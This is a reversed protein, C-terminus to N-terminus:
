TGIKDNEAPKRALIDGHVFGVTGGPFVINVMKPFFRTCEGGFNGWVGLRDFGFMLRIRNNQGRGVSIVGHM